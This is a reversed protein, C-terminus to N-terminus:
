LRVEILEFLQCNSKSSTSNTLIDWISYLTEVKLEAGRESRQVLEVAEPQSDISSLESEEDDTLQMVSNRKELVRRLLEALTEPQKPALVNGPRRRITRMGSRMPRLNVGQKIQDILSIVQVASGDTSEDSSSLKLNSDRQNAKLFSTTTTSYLLNKSKIRIANSRKLQRTISSM